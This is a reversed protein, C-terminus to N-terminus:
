ILKDTWSPVSQGIPFKRGGCVLGKFVVESGMM